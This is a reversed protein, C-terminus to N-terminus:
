SFRVELSGLPEIEVTVEDGPAVHIAPVVSGAIVVEGARLREGAAALLNRLHQVIQVLSGTLAEPEDTAAIEERNKFVRASIGDCNGGVRSPDVRGLLVHRNFINGSLIEEVSADPSYLDALEIAPGLGVIADAATKVDQGGALDHGIHIAIEPELSANKWGSVAVEAGSQVLAESTLFGVLPAETQLRVRAAESGFGIKWGLPKAGSDLRQRRLELQAAM